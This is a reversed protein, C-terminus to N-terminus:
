LEGQFSFPLVKFLGFFFLILATFTILDEVLLRIRTPHSQGRNNKEKQLYGSVKQKNRTENELTLAKVVVIEVKEGEFLKFMFIAM